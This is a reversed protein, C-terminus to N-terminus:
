QAERTKRMLIMAGLYDQHWELSFVLDEDTLRQMQLLMRDVGYSNMAMFADNWPRQRLLNIPGNIVPMRLRLHGVLRQVISARRLLTIHLAAFGGVSLRDLLMDVIRAARRNDIHQLVIYSHVLNFQQDPLIDDLTRYLSVNGVGRTRCNKEAEELM